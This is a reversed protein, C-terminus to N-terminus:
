SLKQLDKLKGKEDYTIEFTGCIGDHTVFKLFIDIPMDMWQGDQDYGQVRTSIGRYYQLVQERGLHIVIVSKHLMEKEMTLAGYSRESGSISVTPSTSCDIPAARM